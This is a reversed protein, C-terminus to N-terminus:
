VVGIALENAVRPANRIILRDVFLIRLALKRSVPLTVACDQLESTGAATCRAGTSLFPGPTTTTSPRGDTHHRCRCPELPTTARMPESQESTCACSMKSRTSKSPQIQIM